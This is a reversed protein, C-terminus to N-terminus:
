FTAIRLHPIYDRVSDKEGRVVSSTVSPFHIWRVVKSVTKNIAKLVNRSGGGIEM